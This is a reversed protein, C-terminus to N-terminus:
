DTLQRPKLAFQVHSDILEVPRSEGDHDLRLLSQKRVKEPPGLPLARCRRFQEKLRSETSRRGM